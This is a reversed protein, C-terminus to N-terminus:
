AEKRIRYYAIRDSTMQTIFVTETTYVHSNLGFTILAGEKPAFLNQILYIEMPVEDTRGFFM